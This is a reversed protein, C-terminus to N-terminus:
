AVAVPATVPTTAASHMEPQVEVSAEISVQENIHDDINEDNTGEKASKDGSLPEAKKSDKSEAKSEAVPSGPAAQRTINALIRGFQSRPKASKAHDSLDSDGSVSGRRSRHASRPLVDNNDRPDDLNVPIVPRSRGGRHMGGKGNSRSPKWATERDYDRNRPMRNDAHMRRQASRRRLRGGAGASSDFRESYGGDSCDDLEDSFYDDSLEDYDYYDCHRD